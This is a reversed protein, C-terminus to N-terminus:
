YIAWGLRCSGSLFRGHRRVRGAPLLQRNLEHPEGEGRRCLLRGAGGLRFRGLALRDTYVSAGARWHGVSHRWCGRALGPLTAGPYGSSVDAIVVLQHHEALTYRGWPFEPALRGGNATLCRPSAPCRTPNSCFRTFRGLAAARRTKGNWAGGARRSPWCGCGSQFQRPPPRRARGQPRGARSLPARSRPPPPGFGAGYPLPPSDCPAYGSNNAAKVPHLRTRREGQRERAQRTVM